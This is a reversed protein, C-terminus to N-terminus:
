SASKRLVPPKPQAPTEPMPTPTPTIPTPSAAKPPPLEWPLVFEERRPRLQMHREYDALRFAEARGAVFREPFFEGETGAIVALRAVTKNKFDIRITDGSARNAGDLKGDSTLFYISLASTMDYLERATDKTV